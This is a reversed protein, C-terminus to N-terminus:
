ATTPVQQPECGTLSRRAYWDCYRTILEQDRGSLHMNFQRRALATAFDECRRPDFYKRLAHYTSRRFHEYAAQADPAPEASDALPSPQLEPQNARETALAEVAKQWPERFRLDGFQCLYATTMGMANAAELLEAKTATVTNIARGDNLTIQM